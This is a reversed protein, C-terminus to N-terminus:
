HKMLHHATKCERFGLMAIGEKSIELAIRHYWQLAQGPDVIINGGYGEDFHMLRPDRNIPKDYVDVPCPLEGRLSIPSGPYITYVSASVGNPRIARLADITHQITQDSEGPSGVIINVYTQLGASKANAVAQSVVDPGTFTRHMGKLITEDGSELSLWILRFGIAYMRRFIQESTNVGARTIAGMTFYNHYNSEILGLLRESRGNPNATFLADDWYFAKFGEGHMSDLDRDMWDLGYERFTIAQSCYTCTFVCGRFSRTQATTLPNGNEGSLFNYYSPNQSYLLQRNPLPVNQLKRGDSPLTFELIKKSIDDRGYKAISKWDPMSLLNSILEGDGRVVINIAPHTATQMAYQVHADEHPGGKAVLIEPNIRKVLRALGLAEPHSPSTGGIMIIEFNGQNVIEELDSDSKPTASLDLANVQHGAQELASGVYILGM